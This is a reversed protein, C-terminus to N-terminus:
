SNIKAWIKIQKKFSEDTAEIRWLGSKCLNKTAIKDCFFGSIIAAIIAIIDLWSQLKKPLSTYKLAQKLDDINSIASTDVSNIHRLYGSIYLYCNFAYFALFILSLIGITKFGRKFFPVGCWSWFFVSWSFGKKFIMCDVAGNKIIYFQNKKLERQM